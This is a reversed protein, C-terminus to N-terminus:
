VVVGEGEVGELPEGEDEEGDEEEEGALTSPLRQLTIAAWLPWDPLSIEAETQGDSIEGEESEKMWEWWGGARRGVNEKERGRMEEMEESM